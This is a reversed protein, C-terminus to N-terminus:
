APATDHYEPSAPNYTDPVVLSDKGVTKVFSLPLRPKGHIANDILGTSLTLALVTLTEADVLVDAVKGLATGSANLVPRGELPRALWEEPDEKTPDTESLADASAITLADAGVSQVKGAPLFRPKAFLGGPDVLFGTIRGSAVHFVVDELRGVREGGNLTMVALGALEKGTRLAM